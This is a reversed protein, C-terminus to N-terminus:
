SCLLNIFGARVPLHCLPHKPGRLVGGGGGGQSCGQAQIYMVLSLSICVSWDPTWYSTQLACSMCVWQVESDGDFVESPIDM